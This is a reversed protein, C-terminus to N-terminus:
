GTTGAFAPVLKQLAWIPGRGEGPRRNWTTSEVPERVLSPRGAGWAYVTLPAVMFGAIEMVRADFSMPALRAQHAHQRRQRCDEGDDQGNERGPDNDVD